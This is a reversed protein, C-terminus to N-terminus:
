MVNCFRQAAPTYAANNLVELYGKSLLRPLANLGVKDTIFSYRQPIAQRLLDPNLIFLRMSEAWAEEPVPEYGSVKKKCEKLLSFWVDGHERQKLRGQRTFVTAIHHGVEHAVVGMATRDTKWGPWSWSRMRPTYVPEATVPVNVFVYGDKYLGTGTGQLPGEAVRQLLKLATSPKKTNLAKKLADDYTMYIPLPAHNYRLFENCAEIGLRYLEMKSIM